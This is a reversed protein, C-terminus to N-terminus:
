GSAADKRRWTLKVVVHAEGGAKALIVGSEVTLKFGMEVEAEDPRIEDLAGAVAHAVRKIGDLSAELTASARLLGDDRLGMRRFEPSRPEDVEVLVDGTPHGQLPFSAIPM